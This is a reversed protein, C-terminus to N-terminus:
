LQKISRLVKFFIRKLKYPTQSPRPRSLAKFSEQSIKSKPNNCFKSVVDDLENGVHYAFTKPTSLRYWGLRDAPFDLYYEEYGKKFKEQPFEKNWLLVERRYTAVFHNAGVIARIPKDLYYQKQKWSYEANNRDLLAANGLGKLFLECDYDSVVKGYKIKGKLFLDYFLSRNYYLSLNQSPVPSVVGAKPYSNFIEFCANEWSEMFLVDSDAISVYDEFCAKAESIIANVKGKNERYIVYKNILGSKYYGSLLEEVETNSANNIITIATTENNISKFLSQLCVKLVEIAEKYYVNSSEPIHVPVIVRHFYHVNKETKFKEPNVGTRM